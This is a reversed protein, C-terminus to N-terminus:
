KSFHRRKIPMFVHRTVTEPKYHSDRYWHSPKKTFLPRVKTFFFRFLVFLVWVYRNSGNFWMWIQCSSQWNQFVIIILSRWQLKTVGVEHHLGYGSCKSRCHLELKMHSRLIICCKDKSFSVWVSFRKRCSTAMNSSPPCQEMQLLEVGDETVCM